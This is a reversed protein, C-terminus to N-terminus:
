QSVSKTDEDVRDFFRDLLAAVIKTAGAELLGTHYVAGLDVRVAAHDMLATVGEGGGIPLGQASAALVVGDGEGYSLTAGSLSGTIGASTQPGAAHSPDHSGYFLYLRIDSPMPRANLDALLENGADAPVTWPQKSDARWFPFTPLFASAAPRRGLGSYPLISPTHAMVYALVTGENPVGVLVLRNVLTAWGYMDHAINWRAMLGGLSYGVVNVRAAHTAPLVVARVYAALAAAGEPVTVQQSPYTFWFVNQRPGSVTYGRREFAALVDRSPGGWENLYGPAIVVPLLTTVTARATAALAGRRVTVEVPFRLNERFPAVPPFDGVTVGGVRVAGARLDLELSLRSPIDILPLAARIPAGDFWASVTLTSQDPESAGFGATVVTVRLSQGVMGAQLVAAQPVDVREQPEVAAVPRAVAALLAALLVSPMVGRWM